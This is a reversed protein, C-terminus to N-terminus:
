RIILKRGAPSRLHELASLVRDDTYIRGKRKTWSRVAQAAEHPEWAQERVVVWHTSALLEMGYPGEFGRIFDLVTEAISKEINSDREVLYRDLETLASDTVTIPAHELVRATGDGFGRLYSGEMNQILHRVKESYPGYRGPKFDLSLKPELYDAFYMLKQIELHSAGCPDEWPETAQRQHVYHRLLDLLLARGWTMRLNPTADLKRQEASPAYLRIVVDPMDTFAERLRAEVDRWDLGGNGAGLPPIAISKIDYERIVRKLDILGADIYELRSPSRWHKKTPFNIVLRPGTIQQIPTVHMHGIRVEGQKCAKAYALFVDPFRRKFQIAIGKGMVGVCNVTNVLADVDAALLDGHAVIIM